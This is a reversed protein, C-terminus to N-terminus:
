PGIAEMHTPLTPMDRTRLAVLEALVANGRYITVQIRRAGTDSSATLAPEDRQAYAVEVAHFWNARDDFARKSESDIQDYAKALLESMREQALMYAVAHDHTRVQSARAAGLTNIAAVYVLGVLLMAFIVEVLSFGHMRRQVPRRTVTAIGGRATARQPRPTNAGVCTHILPHPAFKM